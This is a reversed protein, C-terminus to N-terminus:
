IDRIKRGELSVSLAHRHSIGGAVLMFVRKGNMIRRVSGGYVRTHVM